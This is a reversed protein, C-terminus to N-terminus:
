CQLQWCDLEVGLTWPISKTTGRGGGDVVGPEPETVAEPGLTM